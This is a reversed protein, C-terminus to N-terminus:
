IRGLMTTNSNKLYVAVRKITNLINDGKNNYKDYIKMNPISGACEGCFDVFPTQLVYGYNKYKNHAVNHLKSIERKNTVKKTSLVFCHCCLFLGYGLQIHNEIAVVITATNKEKVIIIIMM